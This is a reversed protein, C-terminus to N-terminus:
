SWSSEGSVLSAHWLPFIPFVQKQNRRGPSRGREARGSNVGANLVTQVNVRQKWSVRVCRKQTFFFGIGREALEEEAATGHKQWFAAFLATLLLCSPAHFAPVSISNNAGCTIACHSSRTTSCRDVNVSACDSAKRSESCRPSQNLMPRTSIPKSLRTEFVLLTSPM